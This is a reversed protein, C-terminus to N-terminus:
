NDESLAQLMEPWDLLEGSHTQLQSRAQELDSYASLFAGMPSPVGESRLFIADEAPVLTGPQLFDTVYTAKVDESKWNLRYDDALCEVADYKFAKGKTNVLQSGFRSDSITMKCLHCLENGYDIPQPGNKSCAALAMLVLILTINRM